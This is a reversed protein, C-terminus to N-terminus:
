HQRAARGQPLSEFIDIAVANLLSVSAAPALHAGDFATIVGKGTGTRTACGDSNCMQQYASVYRINLAQAIKQAPRDVAESRPDLGYRTYAPLTQHNKRWYTWYIKPLTDRWHPVTGIMVIDQEGNSRLVGVTDRITPLRM